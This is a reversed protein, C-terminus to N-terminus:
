RKMVIPRGDRPSRRRFYLFPVVSGVVLGAFGIGAKQGESALGLWVGAMIYATFFVTMPIGFAVLSTLVLSRTSSFVTITDGIELPVQHPNSAEITSSGPTCCAAAAQGDGGDTQNVEVWVIGNDIRQVIGTQKM